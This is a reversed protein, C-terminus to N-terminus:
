PVRPFLYHWATRRSTSLSSRQSELATHRLNVSPSIDHFCQSNHHITQRQLFYEKQMEEKEGDNEQKAREALASTKAGRRRTGEGVKAGEGGTEYRLILAHNEDFCQVQCTFQILSYMTSQNYM